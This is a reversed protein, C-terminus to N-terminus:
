SEGGRSHAPAGGAQAPYQGGTHRWCILRRGESGPPRGPSSCAKGWQDGNRRVSDRRRMTPPPAELRRDPPLLDEDSQGVGGTAQGSTAQRSTTPGTAGSARHEGRHEAEGETGHCSRARGRAGAGGRRTPARRRGGSSEHARTLREHRRFRDAPMRALRAVEAPRDRCRDRVRHGASTSQREGHQGHRVDARQGSGRCEAPRVQQEVGPAWSLRTELPEGLNCRRERLSEALAEVEHGPVWPADPCACRGHAAQGRLASLAYM